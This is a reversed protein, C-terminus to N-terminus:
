GERLYLALLQIALISGFWPLLVALDSTLMELVYFPGMALGSLLGLAMQPVELRAVFDDLPLFLVACLAGLVTACAFTGAAWMWGQAGAKGFGGALLFGAVFAGAGACRCFGADGSFFPSAQTIAFATLAGSLGVATAVGTRKQLTMRSM